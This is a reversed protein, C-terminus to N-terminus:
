SPGVAPGYLFFVGTVLRDPIPSIRTEDFAKEDEHKPTKCLL